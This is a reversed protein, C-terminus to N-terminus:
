KFSKLMKLFLEIGEFNSKCFKSPFYSFDIFRIKFDREAVNVLLLVSSSEFYLDYKKLANVLERIQECVLRIKESNIQGSFPDVFLKRIFKAQGDLCFYKFINKLYIRQFGDSNKLSIGALNLYKTKKGSHLRNQHEFQGYRFYQETLIFKMDLASYNKEFLENQLVIFAKMQNGFGDIKHRKYDFAVERIGNVASAKASNRFNWVGEM